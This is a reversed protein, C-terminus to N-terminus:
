LAKYRHMKESFLLRSVDLVVMIRNVVLASGIAYPIAWPPIVAQRMQESVISSSPIPLMESVGDVVLCIVMDNCQLSLLRTRQTYPLQELDLFIRFDVVSVISGRLNIVGKIWPALNPVPTVEVLREVGQVLEAKVAIERDALSFVLHQEGPVPVVPAEGAIGFQSQALQMQMAAVSPSQSMLKQIAAFAERQSSKLNEGSM